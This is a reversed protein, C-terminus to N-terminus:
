SALRSRVKSRVSLWSSRRCRIRSPWGTRGLSSTRCETDQPYASILSGPAREGSCESHAVALAVSRGTAPVWDIIANADLRIRSFPAATRSPNAVIRGPAWKVRGSGRGAGPLRKLHRSMKFDHRVRCRYRRSGSSRSCWAFFAAPVLVNQAVYACRHAPQHNVNISSQGTERNDARLLPFVGIGNCRLQLLLM